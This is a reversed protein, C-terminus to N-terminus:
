FRIDARIRDATTRVVRKSGDFLGADAEITKIDAMATVSRIMETCNRITDLAGRVAADSAEIQQTLAPFDSLYPGECM